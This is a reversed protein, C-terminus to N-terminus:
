KSSFRKILGFSFASITKGQVGKMDKLGYVANDDNDMVTYMAYLQTNKSYSHYAALAYHAAGSDALNGVDDAQGLAAKYTTNGVKHAANLYIASRSDGSALGTKASELDEYVLGIKTGQGFDWRGVLKTGSVSEYIGSATATEKADNMTETAVALYLPGKDYAISLSINSLERTASKGPLEDSDKDDTDSSYTVVGTVGGMKPTSYWITNDLRNDYKKVSSSDSTDDSIIGVMANHDARSNSFIDIKSSAKKMANSLKGAKFLGWSGKLGAYTDRGKASLTGDDLEVETEYQWVVSLNDSLKESGKFGLKSTNSNVSLASDDNGSTPPAENDSFDVSVHAVGYVEMDVAQAALPMAVLAGAAVFVALKRKSV